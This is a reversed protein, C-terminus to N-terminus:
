PLFSLGKDFRNAVHLTCVRKYEISQDIGWCGSGPDGVETSYIGGATHLGWRIAEM